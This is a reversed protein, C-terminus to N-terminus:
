MCCVFNNMIFCFTTKVYGVNCPVLTLQDPLTGILRTGIRKVRETDPLNDDHSIAYPNVFRFGGLIDSNECETYLHRLYLM